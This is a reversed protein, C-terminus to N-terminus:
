KDPTVVPEEYNIQYLRYLSYGLLLAFAASFIYWGTGLGCVYAGGSAGAVQSCADPVVFVLIVLLFLSLAATVMFSLNNFSFFPEAV